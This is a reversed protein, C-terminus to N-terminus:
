SEEERFAGIGALDGVAAPIGAVVCREIVVAQRSGLM